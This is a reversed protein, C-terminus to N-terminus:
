EGEGESVGIERQCAGRLQEDARWTERRPREMYVIDVVCLCRYAVCEAGIFLAHMCVDIRNHGLQAHRCARMCTDCMCVHMYVYVSVCACVHVNVCACVCM